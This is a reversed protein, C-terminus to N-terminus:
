DTEAPLSMQSLHASIILACNRAADQNLAGLALHAGIGASLNLQLSRSYIVGDGSTKTQKEKPAAM